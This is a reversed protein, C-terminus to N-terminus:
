DLSKQIIKRRINQYSRVLFDAEACEYEEQIREMPAERGLWDKKPIYYAISLSIEDDKM